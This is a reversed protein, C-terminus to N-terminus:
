FGPWSIKISELYQGAVNSSCSHPVMPYAKFLVDMASVHAERLWRQGFIRPDTYGRVAAAAM